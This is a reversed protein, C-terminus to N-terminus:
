KSGIDEPPTQNVDDIVAFTKYKINTIVQPLKHHTKSGWGCVSGDKYCTETIVTKDTVKSIKEFTHYYYRYYGDKEFDISGDEKRPYEWTKGIKALYKGPKLTTRIQARERENKAQEIDRNIQNIERDLKYFENRDSLDILPTLTDIIDQEHDFIGKMLILRSWQGKDELGWTGCSGHNLKINKNTIYLSFSSGFDYSRNEEPNQNVFYIEKRVEWTVDKDIYSGSDISVVEDERLPLLELPGTNLQNLIGFLEKTVLQLRERWKKYYVERQKKLEDLREIETM